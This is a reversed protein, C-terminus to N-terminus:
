DDRKTTRLDELEQCRLSLPLEEPRMLLEGCALTEAPPPRPDGKPEVVLEPPGGPTAPHLICVMESGTLDDVVEKPIGREQLHEQISLVKGSGTPTLFVLREGALLKERLRDIIEQQQTRPPTPM